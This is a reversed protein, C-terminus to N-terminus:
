VKNFLGLFEQKKNRSLTISSNNQMILEGGEGRIYQKICKLNIIHSKHPRFYIPNDKLVEEFIALNKSVLHKTNNNMFIYTYCGSAELYMIDDTKVFHLGEQTSLALTDTIKGSNFRSLQQIQESSSAMENNVFMDLAARLEDSDIPKLLYDLANMRIAKIAYQNYATTFVVKFDINEFQELVEFGNMFPMEIDIFILDPKHQEILAKADQSKQTTALVQVDAFKELEHQLTVIAHKEDDIIIVKIM